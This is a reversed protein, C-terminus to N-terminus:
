ASLTPENKFIQDKVRDLHKPNSLGIYEIFKRARARGCIRLCHAVTNDRKAIYTWTYNGIGFDHLMTSVQKILKGSASSISIEPYDATEKGNIKALRACGDTAFLGRLFATRVEHTGELVCKPIEVTKCKSGVWFGSDLLKQIIKKSCSQIGYCGNKGGSRYKPEVYVSIARWVLNVVYGDYFEQEDLGGRLEWVVSRGTRYLTGDGAHM